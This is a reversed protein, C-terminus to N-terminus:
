KRGRLIKAIGLLRKAEAEIESAIKEATKTKTKM